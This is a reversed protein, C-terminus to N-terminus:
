IGGIAYHNSAIDLLGSYDHRSYNIGIIVGNSYTILNVGPAVVERKVVHAGIVHMLADNVYAHQRKIEPAWVAYQSTYIDASGSDLLLYASFDTLYYAPYLNYDILRLLENQTNSFFNAPRSFLPKQGALVYSLFPVTDSFKAQQSSYMVFAFHHDAGFLYDFPEYVAAQDFLDLMGQYTKIAESRSLPQNGHSSYLLQGITDFAVHQIGYSAMQSKMDSVRQYSSAPHMLYWTGFLDEGENNLLNRRISLDYPSYGRSGVYARTPEVHYYMTVDRSNLANFADKSGLARLAPMENLSSGTLGSRGYGRYSVVLHRIGDAKLDDIMFGLAQVDTMVFTNRGFLARKNEAALVDLHVPIADNEYAVGDLIGQDILDARYANALGVYNADEGHLLVYRLDLDVPNLETQLMTIANTQSQNLPQRYVSRYQFSTFTWFFDTTIDAPYVTLSAYPAGGQVIGLLANQDIGHVLGYMNAQLLHEDKVYGTTTIISRAIGPDFGYFPKEYINNFHERKDFRMLAGIGDPVLVYGPTRDRKVAGFFPYPSLRALRANPGDSISDQPIRVNLGDEELTVVLTMRIGSVAFYLQASFGNELVTVTMSSLPSLFLSEERFQPNTDVSTYYGIFVPSRVRNRWAQSRFGRDGEDYLDPYLLEGEDDLQDYDMFFNSGWVYGTRRDIIRLSLEAMNVYLAFTDNEALKDFDDTITVYPNQAVRLDSEMQTYRNSLLASRTVAEETILLRDLMDPAALVSGLSIWALALVVLMVRKVVWM